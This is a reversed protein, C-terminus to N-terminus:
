CLWVLELSQNVILGDRAAFLFLLGDDSLILNFRVPNVDAELDTLCSRNFCILHLLNPKQIISDLVVM